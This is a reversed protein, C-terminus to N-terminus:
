AIVLGGYTGVIDTDLLNEARLYSLYMAIGAVIAPILLPSRLLANFWQRGAYRFRIICLAAVVGMAVGCCAALPAVELRFIFAVAFAQKEWAKVYWSLTYGSPPFYLIADGFFSLWVVFFLPCLMFGYMLLVFLRHLWRALPWRRVRVPSQRIGAVGPGISHS